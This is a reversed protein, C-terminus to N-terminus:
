PICPVHETCMMCVIDRWGGIHRYRMKILCVMGNGLRAVRDGVRVQTSGMQTSLQPNALVCTCCYKQYPLVIDLSIYYNNQSYISLLVRRTDYYAPSSSFPM